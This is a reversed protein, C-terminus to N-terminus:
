AQGRAATYDGWEAAGTAANPGASRVAASFADPNFVVREQFESARM